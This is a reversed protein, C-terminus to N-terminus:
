LIKDDLFSDHPVANQLEEQTFGPKMIVVMVINRESLFYAAARHCGRRSREQCVVWPCSLLGSNYYRYYGYGYARNAMLFREKRNLDPFCNLAKIWLLWSLFWFYCTFPQREFSWSDQFEKYVSVKEAYASLNRRFKIGDFIFCGSPYLFFWVLHPRFCENDKGTQQGRLCPSLCKDVAARM